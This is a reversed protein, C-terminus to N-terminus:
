TFYKHTQFYVNRMKMSYKVINLNKLKKKKNIYQLTYKKM